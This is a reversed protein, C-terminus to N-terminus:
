LEAWTEGGKKSRPLEYINGQEKNLGPFLYRVNLCDRFEQMFSGNSGKTMIWMSCGPNWTMTVKLKAM